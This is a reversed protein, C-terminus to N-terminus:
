RGTKGNGADDDLMAAYDEASAFTPLSKLKRRKGGRSSNGADVFAAQELSSGGLDVSREEDSEFVAEEDDDDLDCADDDGLDEGPLFEVGVGESGDRSSQIESGIDQDDDFIGGDDDSGELEPRSDVLAKWIAEEDDDEDTDSGSGRRARSEKRTHKKGRGLTSFYKHFFAEDAKVEDEELNWFSESNVSQKTSKNSPVSLLVSSADGSASPQMLSTGKSDGTSKPNKYVFRDLFHILTHLSLDAKESMSEHELLKSADQSM